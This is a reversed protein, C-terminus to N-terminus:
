RPDQGDHRVELLGGGDCAGERADEQVSGAGPGPDQTPLRFDAPPPDRGIESGQRQPLRGEELRRSRNHRRPSPQDIGDAAQLPFLSLVPDLRKEAAVGVEDEMIGGLNERRGEPGGHSVGAVETGPGVPLPAVAEERRYKAAGGGMGGSIAPFQGVETPIM